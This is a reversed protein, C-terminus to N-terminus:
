SNATAETCFFSTPELTTCLCTCILLIYVHSIVKYPKSSFAYLNVLSLPLMEVCILMDQVIAMNYWLYLLLHTTVIWQYPMYRSVFLFRSPLLFFSFGISNFKQNLELVMVKCRPLLNSTNEVM